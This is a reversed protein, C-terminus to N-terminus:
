ARYVTKRHEFRLLYLTTGQVAYILRYPPVYISRESKLVFRLPKGTEPNDLIKEIQEKVRHKVSKDRLKKVQREFKKTWIVETIVVL